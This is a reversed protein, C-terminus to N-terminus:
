SKKKFISFEGTEKKKKSDTNEEATIKKKKRRKKKKKKELVKQQDLEKAKIYEKQEAVTSLISGAVQIWGGNYKLLESIEGSHKMRKTLPHEIGLEALQIENLGGFIIGLMERDEVINIDYYGAIVQLTSGITGLLNGMLSTPDGGNQEILENALEIIALLGGITQQVNGSINLEIQKRENDEVHYSFMVTVSGSAEILEGAVELTFEDTNFVEYTNGIAQLANGSYDLQDSAQDWIKKEDDNLNRMPTSAIASAVTGILTIWSGIIVRKNSM